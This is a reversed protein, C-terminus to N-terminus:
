DQSIFDRLSVTNTTTVTINDGIDKQPLEKKCIKVLIDDITPCVEVNHLASMEVYRDM